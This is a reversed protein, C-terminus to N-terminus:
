EPKEPNLIEIDDGDGLFEMIKYEEKRIEGERINDRRDREAMFAEVIAGFEGSTYFDKLSENTESSVAVACAILPELEKRPFVDTKDGYMLKLYPQLHAPYKAAAMASDAYLGLSTKLAPIETVWPYAKIFGHTIKAHQMGSYRLLHMTTHVIDQIFDTDAGAFLSFEQVCLAKLSSMEAWASNIQNHAKDSLRMKGDLFSIADGLHAKKKLAAPRNVSVASHDDGDIRKGALFLVLSYHCAYVKPISEGYTSMWDKPGKSIPLGPLVPQDVLKSGADQIAVENETELAAELAGLHGKIRAIDTPSVERFLYGSPNMKKRLAPFLCLTYSAVYTKWETLVISESTGIIMMLHLMLSYTEDKSGSPLVYVLVKDVLSAKIATDGPKGKTIDRPSFITSGALTSLSM